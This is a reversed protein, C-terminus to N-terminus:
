GTAPTVAVVRATWPCYWESTVGGREVASPLGDCVETTADAFGFTASDLHWSWPTNVGGDGPIIRGIPVAPPEEGALMRRARAALTPDTVLVAFRESGAVEFTVVVAAAPASTSSTSTTRAPRATTPARDATRDSGCAGGTMAAAVICLAGTVRVARGARPRGPPRCAPDGPNV